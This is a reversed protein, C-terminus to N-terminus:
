FLVLLWNYALCFPLLFASHQSKLFLVAILLNRMVCFQCSFINSFITLSFIISPVPFHSYPLFLNNGWKIQKVTWLASLIFLIRPFFVRMFSVSCKFSLLYLFVVTFHPSFLQCLKLCVSLFYFWTLIEKWLFMFVSYLIVALLPCYLTLANSLAMRLCNRLFPTVNIICYTFSDMSKLGQEEGPRARYWLSVKRSTTTFSVPIVSNSKVVEKYKTFIIIYHWCTHTQAVLM